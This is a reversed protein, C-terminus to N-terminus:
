AFATLMSRTVVLGILGLPVSWRLFWVVETLVNKNFWKESVQPNLLTVTVMIMLLQFGFGITMIQQVLSDSGLAPYRVSFTFNLAILALISAGWLTMRPAIDAKVYLTMITPVLLILLFPTFIGFLHGFPQRQIFVRSEFEPYSDGNWGRLRSSAFDIRKATWNPISITEKIGSANIDNQDQVLALQNVTYRTSLVRVSLGQTDFPFAALRYRTDLVLKLRQIHEVMGDAYIFLGGEARQLNGNQNAITLRPNWMKRLKSAMQESNFELRDAGALKADFALSPDRWRYRLDISAEYNGTSENIKGADNLFVAVGVRLPLPVGAPLSALEDQAQASGTGALFAAAVLLCASLQRKLLTFRSIKSSRKPRLRLLM